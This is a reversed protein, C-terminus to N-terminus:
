SYVITLVVRAVISLAIIIIGTIITVIILTKAHRGYTTAIEGEGRRAANNAKVAYVIAGIGTPWFCFITAIIAPVLWDKQHQVVIVGAPAVQSSQTWTNNSYTQGGPYSYQNGHQGYGTKLAEHSQM